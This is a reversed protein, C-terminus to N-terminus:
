PAGVRSHFENISRSSEPAAAPSAVEITLQLLPHNRVIAGKAAAVPELNIEALHLANLDDPVGSEFSAQELFELFEGSASFSAFVPNSGNPDLVQEANGLVVVPESNQNGGYQLSGSVVNAIVSAAANDQSDTALRSGTALLGLTPLLMASVIGVSMAVESLTFARESVHLKPTSKLRM